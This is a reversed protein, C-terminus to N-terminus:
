SDAGGCGPLGPGLTDPSEDPQDVVATASLQRAILDVVTAVSGNADVVMTALAQYGQQVRERFADDTALRQEEVTVETGRDRHRQRRRSEEVELVVTHDPLPLDKPLHARTAVKGREASGYALTSAISRDLVVPTGAFSSAVAENMVVENARRYFPRRQEPGLEDALRREDRMSAPPSTMVVAGLREALARVVTSKGTGDLGEIAVIHAMRGIAPAGSDYFGGRKAFGALDCGGVEEWAADLGVQTIPASTVVGTPRSQRFGGDPGIMAYTDYIDDETEAVVTTPFPLRALRDRYADFEDPTCVLHAADDNEGPVITCKLLKIRAPACEALFASPDEHANLATVVINMKLQVHESAPRAENWADRLRCVERVVDPQATTERRTARGLSRCTEAVHSDCSLVLWRLHPFIRRCLDQNLLSANTVLATVLGLQSAHALMAPLGPHLTPEGGAFTVRTVDRERLTDLIRRADDVPLMVQQKEFRAYCFLCGYNCQGLIHINVTPPLNATPCRPNPANM